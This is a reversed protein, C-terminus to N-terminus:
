LPAASSLAKDDMAHKLEHLPLNMKQRDVEVTVIPRRFSGVIVTTKITVKGPETQEAGAVGAVVLSALVVLGMVLRKM